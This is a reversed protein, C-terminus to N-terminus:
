RKGNNSSSKIGQTPKRSFHILLLFRLQSGGMQYACMELNKAKNRTHKTDLKPGAEQALACFFIDNSAFPSSCIPARHIIESISGIFKHAGQM